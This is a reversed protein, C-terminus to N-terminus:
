DLDSRTPINRWLDKRNDPMVQSLNQLINDRKETPFGRPGSLSNPLKMGNVKAAKIQLFDLCNAPEFKCYSVKFLLSFEGRRATIQVIDTLYVRNPQQKLKQQSVFSKWNFFDQFEMSKVDAKGKNAQAVADVFDPFDYTKGQKKLSLEVQHHFSDASMFTHGPEFYNIIINEANIDSSNIIYVLFSLLAWNKNQSSCNDLWITISKLDRQKKLFAYFASIIDEQNRGSIGEHWLVAFPNVPSKKGLPVFSENYLSLRKTFIVKKFTDVRPLMIVKELDASFYSNSQANEKAQQRYLERSETALNIHVKWTRCVDRCDLQLNNEKHGHLKM